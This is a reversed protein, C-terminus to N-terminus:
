GACAVPHHGLGLSTGCNRDFASIWYICHESSRVHCGGAHRDPSNVLGEAVPDAVQAFVIPISRTVQHVAVAMSTPAAFILDPKQAVPEAVYMRRLNPDAAAWRYEVHINRGEQWGLRELEKRFAAIRAQIEADRASLALGAGVRRIQATQQAHTALPWICAGGALSFFQRRRM